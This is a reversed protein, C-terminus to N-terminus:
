ALDVIRIGFKDNVIVMEGLAFLQDNLYISLYDELLKDLVIIDGEKLKLVKSFPEVKKGVEVKVDLMVDTFQSIELNKM